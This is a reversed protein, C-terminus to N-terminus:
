GAKVIGMLRDVTDHVQTADEFGITMAHVKKSKIVYNLSAMREEEKVLGGCGFIKMGLVGKGKSGAIDLLSLIKEPEGDMRIQKNNIRALVIDPWEHNVGSELAGFDHASFGVKKILGRSKAESLGDMFRKKEDTWNAKTMCHLLVIDLYDTGLEQLMREITQDVPQLPHWDLNETWIKTMVTMQERPMLRLAEKAFPHSGYTDATDLFRIGRDFGAKVMLKFKDLGIRTQNSQHNWGNTGMGMALRTVKLGTKGLEVTDVSAPIDSGAMMSTLAGSAVVAGTISGTLIFRRRTFEAM